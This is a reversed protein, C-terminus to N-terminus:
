HAWSVTRGPQTRQLHGPCEVEEDKQLHRPRQSTTEAELKLVLWATLDKGCQMAGIKEQRGQECELVRTIGQPGEPYDWTM